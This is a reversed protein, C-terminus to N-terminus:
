SLGHGQDAIIGLLGCPARLHGGDGRHLVGRGGRRDPTVWVDTAQPAAPRVAAGSVASELGAPQRDAAEAAQVDDARACPHRPLAEPQHAIGWVEGGCVDDPRVGFAPGNFRPSFVGLRQQPEALVLMAGSSRGHCVPRQDPKGIGEPGGPADLTSPGLAVPCTVLRRADRGGRSLVLKAPPEPLGKDRVQCFRARTLRHELLQLPKSAGSGRSFGDVHSNVDFVTEFTDHPLM